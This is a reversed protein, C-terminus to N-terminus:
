AYTQRQFEEAKARAESLGCQTYKFKKKQSLGNVSWKFIVVKAKEDVSICGKLTKRPKICAKVIKTPAKDVTTLLENELQIGKLLLEKIEDRELKNIDEHARVNKVIEITIDNGFRRKHECLRREANDTQGCYFIKNNHKLHYIYGIIRCQMDIIENDYEVDRFTITEKDTCLLVDEKKTARSVATYAM